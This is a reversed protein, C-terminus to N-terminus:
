PLKLYVLWLNTANGLTGAPAAASPLADYDNASLFAAVGTESLLVNGGLTSPTGLLYNGPQTGLPQTLAKTSANSKKFCIILAGSAFM